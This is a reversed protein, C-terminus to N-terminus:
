LIQNFELREGDPGEINFYKCGKTWFNLFVPSPELVKYGNEKLTQFTTDIDDVDFAIHDVHGDKRLKVAELEAPPMQYIEIIIKGLQMMSVFGKEANIEFHTSMVNKFGLGEYFFESKKLDTVPIGIHQLGNIKLEM